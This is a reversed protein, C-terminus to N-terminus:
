KSARKCFRTWKDEDVGEPRSYKVATCRKLKQCSVYKRNPDVTSLRSAEKNSFDTLAERFKSECLRWLGLRLGDYCKDDIPVKVHNNSEADEDNDFLGGDTIQDNRNSGVRLDCYVNRTHDSRRRYTSGSSAWTNFWHVDRLLFAVYYPKPFGRVKMRLARRIDGRLIPIIKDITSKDLV